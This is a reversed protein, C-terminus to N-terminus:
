FINRYYNYEENKLEEVRADEGARGDGNVNQKTAIVVAAVVAHMNKIVDVVKRLKKEYTM